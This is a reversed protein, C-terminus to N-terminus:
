ARQELDRRFAGVEPLLSFRYEACPPGVGSREPQDYIVRVERILLQRLVVRRVLSCAISNPAPPQPFVTMQSTLPDLAEAMQRRADVIGDDGRQTHQRPSVRRRGPDYVRADAWESAPSTPDIM